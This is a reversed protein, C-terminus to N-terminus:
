QPAPKAGWANLFVHPSAATFCGDEYEVNVIGNREVCFAPRGNIIYRGTEVQRKPTVGSGPGYASCDVIVM